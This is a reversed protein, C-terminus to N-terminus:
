AKLTALAQTMQDITNILRSNASFARQGVILKSFEDAMDVNSREISAPIVGGARGTGAAQLVAEGSDGTVVFSTGQTAKLGNANAFTAIPIQYLAATSGNSYTGLIRGDSDIEAGTRIGSPVGDQQSDYLDFTGSLQSFSTIDITFSTQENPLANDFEVPPTTVDITVRGNANPVANLNGNDDFNILGKRIEVRNNGTPDAPDTTLITVEWWHQHNPSETDAFAPFDLQDPNADGEALLDADPEYIYDAPDDPDPVINLGTAGLATASSGSIDLTMTPDSAQIVLDGNDNIKAHLAGESANEIAPILHAVTNVEFLDPDVAGARFTITALNAGNGDNIVLTDGDLIGPTPGTPDGVLQSNLDMPQSGRATFHAMPGIIKRFEMSIKREAGANDVVDFTQSFHSIQDNVPLSGPAQNEITHPDIPAQSANLNMSLSLLSTPRTQTDFAGLDIPVLSDLSTTGPLSGDQGLLWGYLVQGNANRLISNADEKFSGERTFLFDADADAQLKTAFFGQGAIAADTLSGSQQIVGQSDIRNVQTVGVGGNSYGTTSNSAAVIEHFSADSRKYGNTNSNAINESIFSTARSNTLMGSTSTYLSGFLSM